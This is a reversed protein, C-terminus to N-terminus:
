NAHDQATARTSDAQQKRFVLHVTGSAGQSHVSRDVKLFQGDEALDWQDKLQLGGRQASELDGVLSLKLVKGGKAWETKTTADSQVPGGFQATSETGDLNFVANQPYYTFAANNGQTRSEGRRSGGSRGGPMGGGPQGMGGGPLGMGGGPWGVGIRGPLGLGGGRRGPNGGSSGGPYGGSNSGSTNEIPKLNGQLSTQVKLLQADQNVDMSYSELGDPLNKTQSTDLVWHGSFNAQKSSDDAQAFMSCLAVAMSLSLVTKM